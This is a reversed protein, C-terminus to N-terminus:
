RRWKVKSSAVRKWDGGSFQYLNFVRAMEGGRKWEIEGSLGNYSMRSLATVGLHFRTRFDASLLERLFRAADFSQLTLLDPNKGSIHRLRFLVERGSHEPIRGRAIRFLNAPSVSYLPNHIDSEVDWKRLSTLFTENGIVAVNQIDKYILDDLFRFPHPSDNPIAVVDFSPLFFARDDKKERRTLFYSKGNYVVFDGKRSTVGDPLPGSSSVPISAGSDKLRLVLDQYDQRGPKLALAVPVSGGGAVVGKRLSTRFVRGYPDSPYLIAVRAKPVLSLSFDAMALSSMEPLVAMSILFPTRPDAPLVPSVALIQDEELDKRVTEYDRTLFPGILAVIKERDVLDRYWSLYSEKKVVFRVILAPHQKESSADIGQDIGLLISRLYPGLARNSLDPLILGVSLDTRGFSIQDLLREAEGIYMSEPYYLIMRLLVKEAKGPADSRSYLVGLRYAAYDGPFERPFASLVQLLGPEDHISGFILSITSTMVAKQDNLGLKELSQGLLIAGSVPDYASWYAILVRAANRIRKSQVIRSFVPLLQRVAGVSNKMGVDAMGLEYRVRIRQSDSMKSTHTGPLLPLLHTIARGPHGIHRDSSALDLLSDIPIGTAGSELLAEQLLDHARRFNKM